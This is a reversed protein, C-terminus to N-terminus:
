HTPLVSPVKHLKSKASTFTHTQLTCVYLCMHMDTTNLTCCFQNVCVCVCTHIYTCVCLCAFTGVWECVSVCERLYKVSSRGTRRNVERGRVIYPM